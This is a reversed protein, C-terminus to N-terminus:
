VIPPFEATARVTVGVLEEQLKFVDLMARRADSPGLGVAEDFAEVPGQEVLM